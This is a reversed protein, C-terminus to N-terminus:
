GCSSQTKRTRKRSLRNSQKSTLYPRLLTLHCTTKMMKQSKEFSEEMKEGVLQEITDAGEGNHGLHGELEEVSMFLESEPNGQNNEWCSYFDRLQHLSDALAASFGLDGVPVVSSAQESEETDSVTFPRERLDGENVLRRKGGPEQVFIDLGGKFDEEWSVVSRRGARPIQIDYRADLIGSGTVPETFYQAIPDKVTGPQMPDEAPEEQSKM